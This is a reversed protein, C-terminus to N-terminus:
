PRPHAQGRRLQARFDRHQGQAQRSVTYSLLDNRRMIKDYVDRVHSLHYARVHYRDMSIAPADPAERMISQQSQDYSLLLPTDTRLWTLYNVYRRDPLAPAPREPQIELSPRVQGYELGMNGIHQYLNVHWHRASFTKM